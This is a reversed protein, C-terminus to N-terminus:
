NGDVLPFTIDITVSKWNDRASTVYKLANRHLLIDTDTKYVM